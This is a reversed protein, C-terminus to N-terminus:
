GTLSCFFAKPPRLRSVLRGVFGASRAVETYRGMYRLRMTGWGQTADYVTSMEGSGGRYSAGGGARALAEMELTIDPAAAELEHM